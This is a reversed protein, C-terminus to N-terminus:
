LILPNEPNKEGRNVLLIEKCIAKRNKVVEILNILNRSRHILRGSQRNSKPKQRTHQVKTKWGPTSGGM